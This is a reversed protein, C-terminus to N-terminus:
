FNRKVGQTKFAKGLGRLSEGENKDGKKNLRGDTNRDIQAKTYKGAQQGLEFLRKEFKAPDQSYALVKNAKNWDVANTKPDRFQSWFKGNDTIMEIASEPDSVEFGFAKGNRDAVSLSVLKSKRFSQIDKEANVRAKYEEVSPAPAAKRAEPLSFEEQAKKFKVRSRDADRKILGLAIRSPRTDKEDETIEFPNVDYKKTLSNIFADEKIDDPLDSNEDYFESRLVELDPKSDWNQTQSELYKKPDGGKQVHDIFKKLFPDGEIEEIRKALQERETILDSVPRGDYELESLEVGDDDSPQPDNEKAPEDQNGEEPEEAPEEEQEEQEEEEPEEAPEQEEEPEEAEPADRKEPVDAEPSDTNIDVEPQVVPEKPKSGDERSAIVADLDIAM